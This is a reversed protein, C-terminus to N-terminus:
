VGVLVDVSVEGQLTGTITIGSDSYMWSLGNYGELVRGDTALLGEQKLTVPDYLDKVPAKTTGFTEEERSPRTKRVTTGRTKKVYATTTSETEEQQEGDDPEKEQTNETKGTKATTNDADTSAAAEEDVTVQADQTNEDVSIVVPAGGCAVLTCMLLLSLLLCMLKKM